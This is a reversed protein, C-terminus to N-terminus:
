HRKEHFRRWLGISPTSGFLRPGVAKYLVVAIAVNVGAAMSLPVILSLALPLGLWPLLAFPAAIGNLIVAVVAGAVLGMGQAAWRFALACVAMEVAVVAHLPLSLPFGAIMGSVLHGVLAVCAGDPGATLALLYGPWSDLAVSGVPSPLKVTSGVAALAVSASIRALSRASPRRAGSFSEGSDKM